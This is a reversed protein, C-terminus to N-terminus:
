KYCWVYWILISYDIGDMKSSLSRMEMAVHLFGISTWWNKRPNQINTGQINYIHGKWKTGVTKPVVHYMCLGILDERQIFHLFVQANKSKEQSWEKRKQSEYFGASAAFFNCLFSKLTIIDEAPFKSM